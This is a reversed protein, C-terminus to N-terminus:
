ENMRYWLSNFCPNLRIGNYIPTPDKGYETTFQAHHISSVLLNSLFQVQLRLAQRGRYNDRM